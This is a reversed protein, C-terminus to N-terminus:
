FSVFGLDYLTIGVEDHYMVEDLWELMDATLISYLETIPDYATDLGVYSTITIYTSSTYSSAYIYGASQNEEVFDGLVGDYYGYYGMFGHKDTEPNLHLYVYAFEGSDYTLM